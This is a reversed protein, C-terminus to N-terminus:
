LAVELDSRSVWEDHTVGDFNIQFLVIPKAWACFGNVQGIRGTPKFLVSAGIAFDPTEWEGFSSV